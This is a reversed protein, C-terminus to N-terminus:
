RRERDPGRGPVRRTSARPMGHRRAISPRSIRRRSM